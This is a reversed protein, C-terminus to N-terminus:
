NTGPHNVIYLVSRPEITTPQNLLSSRRRLLLVQDTSVGRGVVRIESQAIIRADKTSTLTLSGALNMQRSAVVPIM